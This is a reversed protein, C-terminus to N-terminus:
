KTRLQFRRAPGRQHLEANAEIPIGRLNELSHIEAATVQSPYLILTQQEVAHHSLMKHM